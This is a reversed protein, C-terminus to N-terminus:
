ALSPKFLQAWNLRCESGITDGNNTINIVLNPLNETLLWVTFDQVTLLVLLSIPIIGNFWSRRCFQRIELGSFSVWVSAHCKTSFAKMSLPGM